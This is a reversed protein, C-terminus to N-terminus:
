RWSRAQLRRGDRLVVTGPEPEGVGAHLVFRSVAELRIRIEEQGDLFAAEPSGEVCLHPPLPNGGELGEVRRPTGPVVDGNAMELYPPSTRWTRHRDRLTRVTNDGDLLKRGALEPSGRAHIWNKLNDGTVETGDHLLAWYRDEARSDREGFHLAALAALLLLPVLRCTHLANPM